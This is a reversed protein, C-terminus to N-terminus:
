GFNFTEPYRLRLGTLRGEGDFTETCFQQYISM